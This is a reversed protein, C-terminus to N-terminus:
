QFIETPFARIDAKGEKRVNPKELVWCMALLLCALM